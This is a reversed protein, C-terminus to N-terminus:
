QELEGKLLKTSLIREKESFTLAQQFDKISEFHKRLKEYCMVVELYRGRELLQPIATKELHELSEPNHLNLSYKLAITLISNLTGDDVYFDVEDDILAEASENEGFHALIFAKLYLVHIHADSGPKFDDIALDINLIAAKFDGMTQFIEALHAYLTGWMKTAEVKDKYDRCINEITSCAQKTKGINKFNFAQLIHFIINHRSMYANASKERAKALYELAINAYGMFTLGYAMVFYIFADDLDSTGRIKEAKKFHHIAKEYQWDLLERYGTVCHYWFPSGEPSLPGKDYAEADESIVCHLAYYTTYLSELNQDSNQPM